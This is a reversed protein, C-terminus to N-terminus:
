HWCLMLAKWEGRAIGTQVRFIAGQWAHLRASSNEHPLHDFETVNGCTLQLASADFIALCSLWAEKASEM